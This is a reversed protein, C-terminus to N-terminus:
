FMDGNTVEFSPAQEKRWGFLELYEDSDVEAIYRDYVAKM